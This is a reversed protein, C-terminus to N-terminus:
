WKIEISQGPSLSIEKREGKWTLTTTGGTRSLIKVVSPKMGAWELTVEFGGRAKLGSVKGDSWAAPIAPLLKIEGESSQMIMEAVAAAGGFNGDIQFPPHADM